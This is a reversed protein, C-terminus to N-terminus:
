RVLLLKKTETDEGARLRCFYVGSSFGTANWEVSKLGATQEGNVLQAVLQGLTNYVTLTVFSAGPIAYRITTSPNFPNPYSNALQFQMPLGTVPHVESAGSRLYIDTRFGAQGLSDLGRKSVVLDLQGNYDADYVQLADMTGEAKVYWFSYMNDGTSRLIMIYPGSAVLFEPSGDGDMDATLFTPSDLVGASLFHLICKIAYIHEGVAETVTVWLGSSLAAGVYFEPLGNRNVDNSTLTFYNVFPTSDQWVPSYTNNGSNEYFFMRGEFGESAAIDIKGNQDFDVVEFGSVTSQAGPVMQTSWVRIFNNSDPNFEAVYEKAIGNASDYPDRETGKYLFDLLTDGDFSGVISKTYGASLNSQYKYHVFKLQTPLEVRSPQEMSTFAGGYDFMVEALGNKDADTKIESAGIYPYTYALHSRGLSDFEYARTMHERGNQLLQIGYVEPKGNGDFDDIVVPIRDCSLPASGWYKYFGQYETTDVSAPDFEYIPIGRKGAWSRIMTEDTAKLSKLKKMGSVPDTLEITENDSMRYTIGRQSLVDLENQITGSQLRSSTEGGSSLAFFILMGPITRSRVINKV